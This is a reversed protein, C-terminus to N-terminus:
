KGRSKMWDQYEPSKVFEQYPAAGALDSLGIKLEKEVKALWTATDAFKKERLSIVVMTWYGDALTKEQEVAKLAAARAKDFAGSEMHIAARQCNLYADGGVAKDLEDVAALAADFKKANFYPGISVISLAPDAPYAKRLAEVADLSEQAGVDGACMCRALLAFKEKQLSAPLTAFLKLGEAPKGQARLAQMKQLKPLHTVFENDRGLAKALVGPESSLFTLYMRRMTESFWEGSLYIYMDVPRVGKPGAELLYEHYNFNGGVVMRFLARQQGGVSRLGLFKFAGKGAIAEATKQGLNFTKKVGSRYGSKSEESSEIGKFARDFMADADFVKDVWAGDNDQIAKEIQRALEVCEKEPAAQPAMFLLALALVSSM